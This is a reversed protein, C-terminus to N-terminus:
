KRRLGLYIGLMILFVIAGAGGYALSKSVDLPTVVAPNLPLATPSPFPTRTQTITPTLTPQAATPAPTPTEVATYNRVRLDTVLADLHSGSSLTVRVRLSYNGDTITTTDWTALTDQDVAQDSSSILFWTGTSDGSYAFDVEMSQFDKVVSSGKVTVVGQLVDGPLPAVILPAAQAAVSRAPPLALSILLLLLM